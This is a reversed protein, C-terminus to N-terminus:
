TSSRRAAAACGQGGRTAVRRPAPRGLSSARPRTSAQGQGVMGQPESAIHNRCAKLVRRALSLNHLIRRLTVSVPVLGSIVCLPAGPSSVWGALCYRSPRVRGCLLGRVATRCVFLPHSLEFVLGREPSLSAPVGVIGCACDPGAEFSRACSSLLSEPGLPDDLPNVGELVVSLGQPFGDLLQPFVRERSTDDDLTHVHESGPVDQSISRCPSRPSRHHSPQDPDFEFCPKADRARLTPRSSQRGSSDPVDHAELHFHLRQAASCGFTACIALQFLQCPTYGCM